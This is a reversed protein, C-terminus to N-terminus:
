HIHTQTHVITRLAALHTSVTLACKSKNRFIRKIDKWTSGCMCITMCVYSIWRSNHDFKHLIREKRLRKESPDMFCKGYIQMSWKSAYNEMSKTSHPPLFAWFFLNVQCFWCFFIGLCIYIRLLYHSLAACHCSWLDVVVPLCNKNIDVQSYKYTWTQLCGVYPM